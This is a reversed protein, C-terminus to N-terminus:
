ATKVLVSLLQLAISEGDLGLERILEEHGGQQIFQDPIALLRSPVRLSETVCFECIASGLGGALAQEEIVAYPASSASLRRLTNEDLPKVSGANIVAAHIGREKLIRAAKLAEAVMPGTAILTIDGGKELEEWVGPKFGRSPYQASLAHEARPYRIACPSDQGLAWRLMHKMEDVSRPNLVTMGPIHRMFSAGFVGHHSPGDEGGMAARDVLFVVPLNQLCVDVILQDYARQMFTDYIAVVPRMGGAALGAAMTVAHEEAIGVDFVRAPFARQFAGLGTSDAMAATVAVIREDGRGLEALLQGAASGFGRASSAARPEGNQPDFAPMGHARSPDNEAVSYGKGKTTVIHLLVPENFRKARRLFRELGQEDHGDVPGLYTIGLNEFLMGPVFLQKFSNKARRIHDIVRPAGLLSNYVDEKLNLYGEATRVSNLYKSMGGISESISMNNDNLIIIFNTDLKAANNLAEYALGGSLSGDGIVSVVTYREGELDRAKVMGLGASISTSSHGTDFTDCDSETRKPFGSMGGFQRLHDFEEKRGTLIKHTYCQHGVDWIIKDQPLNLARHLAITLEVTGLNSALHGGTVSIKEILFERIEEALGDLESAPIQKIDNTKEIQDLLKGM